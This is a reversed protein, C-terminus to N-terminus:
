RAPPQPRQWPLRRDAAIAAALRLQTHAAILLWTWRDAAAPDRLKPATCGLVQKLFRAHEPLLGSQM